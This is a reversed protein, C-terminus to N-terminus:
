KGIPGLETPQCHEFGFRLIKARSRSLTDKKHIEEEEKVGRRRERREVAWHDNQCHLAVSAQSDRARLLLRHARLVGWKLSSLFSNNTTGSHTHMHVSPTHVWTHKLIGNYSLKYTHFFSLPRAPIHTCAHAVVYWHVHGEGLSM